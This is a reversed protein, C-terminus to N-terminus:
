SPNSSRVCARRRNCPPGPPRDLELRLARRKGGKSKRGTTHRRSRLGEPRAIRLWATQSARSGGSMSQPPRPLRSRPQQRGSRQSVRRLLQPPIQPTRRTTWRTSPERRSASPTSPGWSTRTRFASRSTCTRRRRGKSCSHFQSSRQPDESSWATREAAIRAGARRRHLFPAGSRSRSRPDLSPRDGRRTSATMRSPKSRTTTTTASSRATIARATSPGQGPHETM